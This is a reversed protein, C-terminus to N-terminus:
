PISRWASGDSVYLAGVGPSLVSSPTANVTVNGSTAANKVIYVRGAGATSASPLTISIGGASCVLVSDTQLATYNSSVATYASSYGGKIAMNGTGDDLTQQLVGAVMTHFGKGTGSGSAYNIAAGGQHLIALGYNTGFSPSATYAPLTDVFFQPIYPSSGSSGICNQAFAALGLGNYCFFNTQAYLYDFMSGGAYGNLSGLSFVSIASDTNIYVSGSMDFSNGIDVLQGANTLDVPYGFYNGPGITIMGSYDPFTYTPTVFSTKGVVVSYSGSQGEFDCNRITVGNSYGIHMAYEGGTIEISDYVHQVGEDDVIPCGGETQTWNFHSNVVHVVTTTPPDNQGSGNASDGKSPLWLGVYTGSTADHETSNIYLRDCQCAVIQYYYGSFCVREIVIASASQLDLGRGSGVYLGGNLSFDFLGSYAAVHGESLNMGFKCSLGPGELVSNRGFGRINVCPSFSQTSLTSTYLTLVSTFKYTTNPRLQLTGGGALQLANLASQLAATDDTYGDGVAGFVAPDVVTSGENVYRTDTFPLTLASTPLAIASSVFDSVTLTTGPTWAYAGLYVPGSPAGTLMYVGTDGSPIAGPTGASNYVQSDPILAFSSGVLNYFHVTGSWHGSLTIILQGGGSNPGCSVM